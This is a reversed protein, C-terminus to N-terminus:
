CFKHLYTYQNLFNKALYDSTTFILELGLFPTNKVFYEYGQIITSFCKKEEYKVTKTYLQMNM